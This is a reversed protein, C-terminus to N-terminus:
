YWRKCFCHKASLRMWIANSSALSPSLEWCSGLPCHLFRQGTSEHQCWRRIGMSICIFTWQNQFLISHIGNGRRLADSFRLAQNRAPRLYIQSRSVPVLIVWLVLWCDLSEWKQDATSCALTQQLDRSLMALCGADSGNLRHSNLIECM